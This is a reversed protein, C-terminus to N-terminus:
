GNRNEVETGPCRTPLQSVVEREFHRIYRHDSKERLVMLRSNALAVFENAGKALGGEPTLDLVIGGDNPANAYRQIADILRWESLPAIRNGDFLWENFAVVNNAVDDPMSSLRALDFAPDGVDIMPLQNIPRSTTGTNITGDPKMSLKATGTSTVYTNALQNWADKQRVYIKPVHRMAESSLTSLVYENGAVQATALSKLLGFNDRMLAPDTIPKLPNGMVLDIPDVHQQRLFALRSDTSYGFVPGISQVSLTRKAAKGNPFVDTFVVGAAGAHSQVKSLAHELTAMVSPAFPSVWNEYLAALMDDSRRYVPVDDAWRPENPVSAIQHAFESTSEGMIDRDILAPDDTSWKLLSVVPFVDIHATKARAIAHQLIDVPPQGPSTIECQDRGDFFCDLWLQNFGLKQMADIVDDVEQPSAPRLHVARVDIGAMVSKLSPKSERTKQELDQRVQSLDFSTPAVDDDFLRELQVNSCLIPGDVAPTLISILPRGELVINRELGPEDFTAPRHGDAASEANAHQLEKLILGAHTQQAPSLRDFPIGLRWTHDHDTVSVVKPDGTPPHALYDLEESTLALPDEFFPLDRLKHRASVSAALKVQTDDKTSRALSAQRFATEAFAGEGVVEDALVCAPGVKRFTGTVCYAIARLLDRAPWSTPHGYIRVLRNEYRRDAYIELHTSIGIATILAGVTTNNPVTVRQDFQPLKLDLDMPRLENPGVDVYSPSRSQKQDPGENYRKPTTVADRVPASALGNKGYPIQMTLTQGLRFRLSPIDDDPVDITQVAATPDATIAEARLHGPLMIDFEDVQDQSRLDASGIGGPSTLLRWQDDDLGAVFAQFAEDRTLALYRNSTLDTSYTMMSSPGCADIGGFQHISMHYAAAVDNESTSSSPPEFPRQWASGNEIILLSRDDPLTVNAMAADLTAPANPRPAATASQAGATAWAPAAMITLLLTTAAHFRM